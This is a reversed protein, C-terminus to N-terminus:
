LTEAYAYQPSEVMSRSLEKLPRPDDPQNAKWETYDGWEIALRSRRLYSLILFQHADFEGMGKVLCDFGKKYLADDMQQLEKDIM